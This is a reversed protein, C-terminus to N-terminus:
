NLFVMFLTFCVRSRFDEEFDEPNFGEPRGDFDRMRDDRSRKRDRPPRTKEPAVFVDKEDYGGM